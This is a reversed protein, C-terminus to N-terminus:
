PEVGQRGVCYRGVTFTCTLSYNQVPFRGLLWRFGTPTM